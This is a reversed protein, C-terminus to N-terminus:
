ENDCMEKKVMEKARHCTVCAWNETKGYRSAISRFSDQNVYRLLFVTRYPEKLKAAHELIEQVERKQKAEEESVAPDPIRMMATDTMDAYKRNERLQDYYINRGIACLWSKLSSEKRFTHMANMARFFTEATIEEALSDDHTLKLLYRWVDTFYTRYVEEFEEM